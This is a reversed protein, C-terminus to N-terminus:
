LRSSAHKGGKVDFISNLRTVVIAAEKNAFVDVKYYRILSRM